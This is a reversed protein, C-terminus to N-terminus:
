GGASAFRLIFRRRFEEAAGTGGEALLETCPLALRGVVRPEMAVLTVACEDGAHEFHWVGREDACLGLEDELWGRLDAYEIGCEEHLMRPVAQAVVADLHEAQGM